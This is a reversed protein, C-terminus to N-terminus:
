ALALIRRCLEHTLAHGSRTAVVTAHLPRRLLALDGILDLLKHRAPEHEFRWANDIPTGDDGIVLMDRTSLHRFLGAAIAAQAEHRLSFTRAPAIHYRYTAADGQWSAQQPPLPSSPGYDLRYTYSLPAGAPPPGATISAAGQTVEIVRDLVIPPPAHTTRLAPLLADVFPLASGDLIPIEPGGELTLLAEWIGLGALASLVHEVTAICAAPPTPPDLPSHGPSANLTTNRIPVAAPLGSWSTDTTVGAAHVPAIGQSRGQHQRIITIWHDDAGPGLTLGAPVGSFLGVGHLPGVTRDIAHPAHAAPTTM